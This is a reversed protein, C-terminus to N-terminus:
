HWEQQLLFYMYKCYQLAVRVYQSSYSAALQAEVPEATMQATIRCAAALNIWWKGGYECM